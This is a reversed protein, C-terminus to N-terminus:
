ILVSGGYLLVPIVENAGGAAQLAVGVARNTTTAAIVKGNTDFMVEVGVTVAAGAIAKSVGNHTIEAEQGSLPKNQLIGISKDTSASVVNVARDATVKVGLFQKASLDAAANLAAPKFGPQEFSM